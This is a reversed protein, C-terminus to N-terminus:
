QFLGSSIPNTYQNASGWSDSSSTGGSVSSQLQSKPSGLINGAGKGVDGIDVDRKSSSITSGGGIKLTPTNSRSSWYASYAGQRRGAIDLYAGVYSQLAGMARDTAAMGLEGLGKEAELYRSALQTDLAARQGVARLANVGSGMRSLGAQLQSRQLESQRGLTAMTGTRVSQVYQEYPNEDIYRTKLLEVGEAAKNIDGIGLDPATKSSLGFASTGSGNNVANPNYNFIPEGSAKGGYATLATSLSVESESPGYGTRAM